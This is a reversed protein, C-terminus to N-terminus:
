TARFVRVSEKLPNMKILNPIQCTHIDNITEGTALFLSGNEFELDSELVDGTQLMSASLELINSAKSASLQEQFCKRVTALLEFDYLSKRGELNTFDEATPVPERSSLALDNLIKLIRAGLPISEGAVDDTPLGSGDYGKDQYYIIEAVPEFRPINKILKKGLEPAQAVISTELKTLEKGSRVKELVESPIAILGLTSLAAAIDLKWPHPMKMYAAVQNAWNRIKVTKGFADPDTLSLVDVLVKVSGALTKELLERESTVLQYQRIATEVGNILVETSCPKTFFRFVNGENVADIATQQDSNGTLMLRTTESSIDQMRELVEIGNMGQMQMDSVIVAFPGENEVIQLADQGSAATFIDFQKRLQRKLGNLINIEDDVLLVKRNDM